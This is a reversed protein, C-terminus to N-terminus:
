TKLETVTIEPFLRQFLNKTHVREFESVTASMVFEKISHRNMSTHVVADCIDSFREMLEEKRQSKLVELDAESGVVVITKKMAKFVGQTITNM